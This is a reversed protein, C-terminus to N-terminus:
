CDGANRLLGGFDAARGALFRVAFTSIGADDPSGPGPSIVLREPRLKKFDCAGIEDNRLVKVEAGLIQMYQVLNYTFSDYNDLLLVKKM